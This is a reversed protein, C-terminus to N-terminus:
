DRRGFTSWIGGNGAHDYTWRIAVSSNVDVVVGPLVNCAGVMSQILFKGQIDRRFFIEEKAM